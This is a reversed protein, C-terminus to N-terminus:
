LKPLKRKFNEWAKEFEERSIEAELLTLYTNENKNIIMVGRNEAQFSWGKFTATVENQMPYVDEPRIEVVATYIPWKKSGKGYSNIRKFYKGEYKKKLIPHHKKVMQDYEKQEIAALKKKLQAKTEM